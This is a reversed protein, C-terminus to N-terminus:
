DTITKFLIAISLGAQIIVAIVQSLGVSIFYGESILAIKSLYNHYLYIQIPIATIILLIAITILILKKM